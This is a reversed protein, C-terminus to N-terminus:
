SIKAKKSLMLKSAELFTQSIKDLKEIKIVAGIAIAEKPMGFVVSTTEDQAITYAGAYKLNLMGASGDKGMGTLIAAIVPLRANKAASNFLVDVSPRFRNVPEEDSVRVHRGGTSLSMHHGGPAILIRGARVEDGDEAEKVEFPCLSNLREALAKSFVPPIHQTVLIPPINRPMSLFIDQLAQTGGTSSGIVILQDSLGEFQGQIPKWFSSITAAATQWRSKIAGEMKLKLEDSLSEWKGSEPKQLYDLAGAALADMVLGGDDKPQSTILLTPIRRPGLIKKMAECGDMKGLHLDLTVLDPFYHKLAKPLSEADELEGVVEWDVFSSILHKLLKRMTASDDVILLRKRRHGLWKLSREAFNIQLKVSGKVTIPRTGDPVYGTAWLSRLVEEEGVIKWVQSSGKFSPPLPCNHEWLLAQVGTPSERWIFCMGTPLTLVFPAIDSPFIEGVEIGNM